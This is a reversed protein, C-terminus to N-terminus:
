AVKLIKATKWDCWSGDTQRFAQFVMVGSRFVKITHLDEIKMFQKAVDWAGARTFLPERTFSNSSSAVNGRMYLTHNGHGEIRFERAANVM